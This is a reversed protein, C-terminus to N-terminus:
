EKERDELLGTLIPVAKGGEKSSIEGLALAAARRVGKDADGTAKILAPVAAAGPPGIWRLGEAAAARVTPDADGLATVLADLAPLAKERLDGIRRAAEVRANTPPSKLQEVWHSLPKGCTVPERDDQALVVSPAFVVVLVAHALHESFRASM